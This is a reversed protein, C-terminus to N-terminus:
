DQGSQINNKDRWTHPTYNWYNNGAFIQQDAHSVPYFQIDTLLLGHYM